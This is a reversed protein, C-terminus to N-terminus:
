ACLENRKPSNVSSPQLNLEKSTLEVWSPIFQVASPNQREMWFTKRAWNLTWVVTKRILNNGRKTRQLSCLLIANQIITLRYVTLTMKKPLKTLTLTLWLRSPISEKKPTRRSCKRWWISPIALFNKISMEKLILIAREIKPYSKMTTRELSLARAWWSFICLLDLVLCTVFPITNPRWTRSTLLKLRLM